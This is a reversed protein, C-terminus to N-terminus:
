GEDTKREKIPLRVTFRTEGPESDFTIEGGHGGVIVLDYFQQEAQTRL